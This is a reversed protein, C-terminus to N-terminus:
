TRGWLVQIFQNMKVHNKIGPLEEIGSCIDVAYPNSVEIAKLANAENLGGALIFPKPLHEPIIRWDFALGSGGRVTESPTDLLLAAANAYDAMSTLIHERSQPQVAKIFPMNFQQCFEPTEDGHFQLIQIPLENILCRVFDFEPNVLVAVTAIFPPINKLLDKAHEITICRASKSYFILGLADVGLNAAHEIDEHRTMGCMKVRM